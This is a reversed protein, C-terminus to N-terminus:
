AELCALSADLDCRTYAPFFERVLEVNERSM